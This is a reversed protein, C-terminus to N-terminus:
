DLKKKLAEKQSFLSDILLGVAVAIAFGALVRLIAVDWSFSYAVPTSAFVLPNVIPGGLLFTVASGLPMGKRLLWRVVLVIACECVPFAIGLLGALFISLVRNKPLCKILADREVFVEILGGILAGLLMFPFAELVISSFIISFTVFVESRAHFFAIYLAFVIFTAQVNRAMAVKNSGHHHTQCTPNESIIAFPQNKSQEDRHEM